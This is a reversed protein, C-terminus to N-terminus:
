KFRTASLTPRNSRSPAFPGVVEEVEFLAVLLMQACFIGISPSVLMGELLEDIDREGELLQAFGQPLDAKVSEFVADIVNAVQEVHAVLTETGLFTVLRDRRKSVAVAVALSPLNGQAAKRLARKLGFTVRAFMQTAADLTERNLPGTILGDLARVLEPRSWSLEARERASLKGLQRDLENLTLPSPLDAAMPMMM